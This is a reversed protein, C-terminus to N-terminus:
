TRDIPARGVSLAFLALPTFFGAFYAAMTWWPGHLSLGVPVIGFVFIRVVSSLVFGAVGHARLLRENAYMSLGANLLGCAVGVLLGLAPRPFAPALAVSVAAGTLLSGAVMFRRGQRYADLGTM